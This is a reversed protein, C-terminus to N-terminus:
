SDRALMTIIEDLKALLRAAGGRRLFSAFEKQQIDTGSVGDFWVNNIRWVGQADRRLRYDLAVDTDPGSFHSKIHIDSDGVPAESGMVFSQGNYDDFRSALTALAYGRIRVALRQRESVGLKGWYRGIIARSIRPLDFAKDIIPALYHRRGEFGLARGQQMVHLLADQFQRVPAQPGDGARAPSTLLGWVLVAALVGRGAYMPLNGM